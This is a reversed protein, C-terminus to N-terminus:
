NQSQSNQTHVNRKRCKTERNLAEHHAGDVTSSLDAQNQVNLEIGRQCQGIHSNLTQIERKAASHTAKMDFLEKNLADNEARLRIITTNAENLNLELAHKDLELVAVLKNNNEMQRIFTNQDSKFAHIDKKSNELEFVTEAHKTKLALLESIVRQGSTQDVSQVQNSASSQAEKQVDYEDIEPITDSDKEIKVRIKSKAEDKGGTSINNQFLINLFTILFLLEPKLNHQNQKHHIM